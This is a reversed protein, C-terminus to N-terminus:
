LLGAPEAAAPEERGDTGTAQRDGPRDERRLLGLRRGAAAAAEDVARRGGAEAVAVRDAVVLPLAGLGATIEVAVATLYLGAANVGRGRVLALVRLGTM